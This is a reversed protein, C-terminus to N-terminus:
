RNHFERAGADVRILVAANNEFAAKVAAPRHIAPPAPLQTL